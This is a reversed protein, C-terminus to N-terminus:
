STKAAPHAEESGSKGRCYPSKEWHCRAQNLPVTRLRSSSNQRVDSPPSRGTMSNGVSLGLGAKCVDRPAIAPAVMGASSEASTAASLRLIPAVNYMVSNLAKKMRNALIVPCVSRMTPVGMALRVLFSVSPRMPNKTLVSAMRVLTNPCELM